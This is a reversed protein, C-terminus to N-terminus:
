LKVPLTNKEEFNGAGEEMGRAVSEGGGEQRFKM